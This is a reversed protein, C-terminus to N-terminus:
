FLYLGSSVTKVFRFKWNWVSECLLASIGFGRRVLEQLSSDQQILELVTELCTWLTGACLFVVLRISWGIECIYWIICLITFYLLSVLIQKISTRIWWTNSWAHLIRSETWSSKLSRTKKLEEWRTLDREIVEGSGSTQDKGKRLFSRLSWLSKYSLVCKPLERSVELRRPPLAELLLLHIVQHIHCVLLAWLTQARVLKRVTKEKTGLVLIHDLILSGWSSPSPLALSPKRGTRSACAACSCVWCCYGAWSPTSISKYISEVFSGTPLRFTRNGLVPAKPIEFM